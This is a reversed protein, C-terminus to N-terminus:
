LIFLITNIDYLILRFWIAFCKHDIEKKRQKKIISIPMCQNVCTNMTQKSLESIQHENKMIFFNQISAHFLSYM